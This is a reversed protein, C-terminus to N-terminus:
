CTTLGLFNGHARFYHTCPLVEWFVSNDEPLHAGQLVPGKYYRSPSHELGWRYWHVPQCHQSNTNSKLSNKQLGKWHMQGNWSSHNVLMGAWVMSLICCNKVFFLMVRRGWRGYEGWREGLSKKKNVWIFFTRLPFHQQYLSPSVFFPLLVLLWWFECTWFINQFTSFLDQYTYYMLHLTSPLRRFNSCTLIFVSKLLLNQIKPNGGEYEAAQFYFSKFIDFLDVLDLTGNPFATEKNTKWRFSKDMWILLTNVLVTNKNIEVM